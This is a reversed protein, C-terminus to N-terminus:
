QLVNVIFEAHDAVADFFQISAQFRPDLIVAAAAVGLGIDAAVDLKREIADTTPLGGLHVPERAAAPHGAFILDRHDIAAGGGGGHAM